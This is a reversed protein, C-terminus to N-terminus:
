APIAARPSPYREAVANIELYNWNKFPYGRPPPLYCERQRRRRSSIM